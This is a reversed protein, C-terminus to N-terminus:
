RQGSLATWATLVRRDVLDASTWATKVLGRDKLWATVSAVAADSPLRPPRYSPFVFWTKVGDPFGAKDVLFKWYRDHDANIAKGARDGAALFAAIKPANADVFPQNFLIVAPDENLRDSDGLLTAGRSLAVAALPDPISAAKLQGQLLMELRVPMKPVSLLNVDSPAVGAGTLMRSVMFHIITNTSGGISQGALGKLTLKQGPAGLLVYRGETSAVAMLKFGQERALAAGLLDGIAGDVAGAQLAADREVASQFRVLQVDVGAQAFLGEDDAVLYPLSSIDNLVGFKLPAAAACFPIAVLATLALALRRIM